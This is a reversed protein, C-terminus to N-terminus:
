GSMFDNNSSVSDSASGTATTPSAATNTAAANPNNILENVRKEIEADTLPKNTNNTNDAKTDIIPEQLWFFRRSNSDKYKLVYVRGDNCDPVREFTATAPFVMLNLEVSDSPRLLWQFHLIQDAELVLQVKGRRKDATLTKVGNTGTKLELMGAKFEFLPKNSDATSALLSQLQALQAAASSM